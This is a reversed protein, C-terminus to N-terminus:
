MSAPSVSASAAPSSSRSDRISHTWTHFVSTIQGVARGDGSRVASVIGDSVSGRLAKPAGFALVTDGAQPAESAMKLFAVKANPKEVRLVALDRGLSVATFGLVKTTTKDPLVVTAEIAGAVVHFNTVVSGADDVFFGSGLGGGPTEITVVAPSVKAVVERTAGDGAAKDDPRAMSALLLVGFPFAFALVSRRPVGLTM